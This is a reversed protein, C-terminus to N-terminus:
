RMKNGGSTFVDIKRIRAKNQILQINLKWKTEVRAQKNHQMKLLQVNKIIDCNAKQIIDYWKTCTIFNIGNTGKVRQATNILCKFEIHYLGEFYM